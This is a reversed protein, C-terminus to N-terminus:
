YLRSKIARIVKGFAPIREYVMDGIDVYDHHQIVKNSEESFTIISAGRVTFPKGFNLPKANYTMDWECTFTRDSQHIKKFDFHINEVASYAHQYYKKLAPLGSVKILPDEFVVNDDYLNELVELNPGKYENFSDVILKKFDM